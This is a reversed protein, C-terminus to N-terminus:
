NQFGTAVVITAEPKKVHPLELRADRLKLLGEVGGSEFAQAAEEADEPQFDRKLMGDTVLLAWQLGALNITNTNWHDQVAPDGNFMACGGKGKNKNFRYAQELEFFRIYVSWGSAIGLKNAAVKCQEFFVNGFEELDRAAQDFNTFYHIGGRDRWLIGADGVVLFLVQGRNRLVQLAAVCCGAVSDKLLNKGATMRHRRGIGKNAKLLLSPLDYHHTACDVANCIAISAMQGGSMGEGYDLPEGIHPESVGDAVVAMEVKCNIGFDDEKRGVPDAPFYHPKLSLAM